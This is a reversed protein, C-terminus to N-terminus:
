KTIVTLDKCNGNTVHINVQLITDSMASEHDTSRWYKWTYSNGKCFRGPDTPSWLIPLGVPCLVISSYVTRIVTIGQGLFHITGFIFVDSWLLFCNQNTITKITAINIMPFKSKHLFTMMEDIYTFNIPPYIKYTSTWRAKRRVFNPLGAALFPLGPHWALAIKLGQSTCKPNSMKLIATTAMTFMFTLFYKNSRITIFRWM